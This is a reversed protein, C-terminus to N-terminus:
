YIYYFFFFNHSFRIDYLSPKSLGSIILGSTPVSEQGKFFYIYFFFLEHSRLFFKQSLHFNKRFQGMEM